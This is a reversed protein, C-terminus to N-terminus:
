KCGEQDYDEHQDDDEKEERKTTTTLSRRPQRSWSRPPRFKADKISVNRTTAQSGRLWDEHQDDDEKEERKTTVILSGRLRLRWTSWWRGKGGEQSYSNVVRKTTM